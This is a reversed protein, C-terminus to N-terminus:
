SILPNRAYYTQLDDIGAGNTSVHLTEGETRPAMAMEMAQLAQEYVQVVTSLKTTDGVSLLIQIVTAWILSNRAALPIMPIPSTGSLSVWDGVKIGAVSSLQLTPTSNAVITLAQANLTFPPQSSVVDVTQGTLWTNPFPSGACVITNSVTNISTVQGANATSCLDNPQCLYLMSFTQAIVPTPYLKINNGEYYHNQGRYYANYFNGGAIDEPTIQGVGIYNPTYPVVNAAVMRLDRLKLGRCRAPLPYTDQGAVTNFWMDQILYEENLASIKPVITDQMEYNFMTIFDDDTYKQASAALQTRLILTSILEDTTYDM